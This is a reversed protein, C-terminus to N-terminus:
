SFYFKVINQCSTIENKLDGKFYIFHQEFRVFTTIEQPGNHHGQKRKELTFSQLIYLNTQIVYNMDSLSRLPVFLCQSLTTANM